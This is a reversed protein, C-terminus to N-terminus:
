TTQPEGVGDALAPQPQQMHHQEPSTQNTRQSMTFDHSMGQDGTTPHNSTEDNRPQQRWTDNRLPVISTPVRVFSRVFSRRNEGRPGV